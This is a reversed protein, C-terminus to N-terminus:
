TSPAAIAALAANAITGDQDGVGGSVGIGGIVKGDVIIPEGGGTVPAGISLLALNGNAVATALTRTARRFKAAFIAKRTATEIAGYNTDDMKGFWVLEGSPEVISIAVNVGLSRAAALAAEAAVKASDLAIPQGYSSSDVAAPQAFAAPACALVFAAALIATFSRSMHSKEGERPRPSPTATRAVMGASSEVRRFADPFRGIARGAM